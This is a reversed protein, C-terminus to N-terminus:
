DGCGCWKDKFFNVQFNLPQVGPLRHCSKPDHGAQTLIGWGRWKRCFKLANIKLFLAQATACNQAMGGSYSEGKQRMKEM